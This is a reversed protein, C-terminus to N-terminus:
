CHTNIVGDQHIVAGEMCSGVARKVDIFTACKTASVTQPPPVLLCVGFFTISGLLVGFFLNRLNM